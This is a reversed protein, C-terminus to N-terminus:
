EKMAPGAAGKAKKDRIMKNVVITHYTGAIAAFVLVLAFAFLQSKLQDSM